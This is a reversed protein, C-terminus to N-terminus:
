HVASFLRGVETVRRQLIEVAAQLQGEYPLSRDIAAIARDASSTDVAADVVARILAEKDPFVRFITGEAVGAADAIQRTTVGVGREMLLPLTAAVIAARREAPPLASARQPRATGIPM